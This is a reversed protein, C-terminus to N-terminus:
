NWSFVRRRLEKAIMKREEVVAPTGLLTSNEQTRRILYPMVENVPGYPIYKYAQFKKAALIFTLHDAMGLLQGFYVHKPNKGHKNMQSLVFQMTHANHSAVMIETHRSPDSILMDLVRHYNAETDKYTDFIPSILDLKRAREREGIMYAGRVIKAGFNWNERKARDLDRVVRDYSGRLYTQYTSFIIPTNPHAGSQHNYKKQMNMTINDIAPQIASWEADIMVRVKLEDALHCIDDCRCLLNQMLKLEESSLASNFLPGKVRCTQVLQSLDILSLSGIWDVIDIVGDNNKDFTNFTERLESISTENFLRNWGLVFQDFTLHVNNDSVKAFLSEIEVLAVSMRELLAPEGLASLKIAAFGRPSVNFVARVAHKFIRTNEDCKEESSYVNVRAQALSKLVLKGEVIEDEDKEESEAAYDLIGGVGVSNLRRIPGTIDKENTGACFHRFLTKEILLHAYKDGLVSVSLNYLWDARKTLSNFTCGYLVAWARFLEGTSKTAFALKSDSFDVAPIDFHPVVTSVTRSSTSSRRACHRIQSMSLM